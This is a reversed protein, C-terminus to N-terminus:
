TKEEMVHAAVNEEIQKKPLGFDRSLEKLLTLAPAQIVLDPSRLNAFLEAKGKLNKSERRPAAPDSFDLYYLTGYKIHLRRLFFRKDLKDREPNKLAPISELNNGGGANMQVAAKQIFAEAEDIEWRATLFSLTQFTLRVNKVLALTPIRYSRPNKFKIRQIFVELSRAWPGHVRVSVGRVDVDAGTLGRLGAKIGLTVIHARQTFLCFVLTMSFALFLPLVVIGTKRM